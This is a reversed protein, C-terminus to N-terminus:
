QQWDTHSGKPKWPIFPPLNALSHPIGIGVPVPTGGKRGPFLGTGYFHYNSIIFM